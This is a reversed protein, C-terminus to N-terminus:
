ERLDAMVRQGIWTTLVSSSYESAFELILTVAYVAALTALLGADHRPVAVDLARQTLAPPVLALASLLLLLVVALLTANRYPRLYRVLRRALAADYARTEPEDPSAASM